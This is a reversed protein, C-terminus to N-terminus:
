RMFTDPNIPIGQRRLEYHLGPQRDEAIGVKAIVDGSQVIDGISVSISDVFGYASIISESHEILILSEYGIVNTGVYVVRGINAAYVDKGETSSIRIGNSLRDGQGFSRSIQGDVPNVWMANGSLLAPPSSNIMSSPEMPIQEMVNPDNIFQNVTECRIILQQGSYISDASHLDSCQAIENITTQFNWAIMSLTEGSRVTYINSSYNILTSSCGLSLGILLLFHNRNM